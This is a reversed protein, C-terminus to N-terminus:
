SCNNKKMDKKDQRSQSCSNATGPCKYSYEKSFKYYFRSTKFRSSTHLLFTYRHQPVSIQLQVGIALPANKKNKESYFRGLWM